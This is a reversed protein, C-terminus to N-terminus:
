RKESATAGTVAESFREAQRGWGPAAEEWHDLLEERQDDTM